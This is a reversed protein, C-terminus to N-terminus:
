GGRKLPNCGRSQARPARRSRLVEQHHAYGVCLEEDRRASSVARVTMSPRGPWPPSAEEEHEPTRSPGRPRPGPYDSAVGVDTDRRATSMPPQDWPPPPGATERDRMGCAASNPSSVAM